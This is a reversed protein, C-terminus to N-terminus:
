LKIPLSRCQSITHRPVTIPIGSVIENHDRNAKTIYFGEGTCDDSFSTSDSRNQCWDMHPKCRRTWTNHRVRHVRWPCTQASPHTVPLPQCLIYMHWRQIVAHVVRRTELVPSTSYQVCSAELSPNQIPDLQRRKHTTERPLWGNVVYKWTHGVSLYLMDSVCQNPKHIM